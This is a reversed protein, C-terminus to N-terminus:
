TMVAIYSGTVVDIILLVLSRPQVVYILRILLWNTYFLQSKALNASNGALMPSYDSILVASFFEFFKCFWHRFLIIPGFACEEDYLSSGLDDSNSVNVVAMQWSMAPEMLHYLIMLGVNYTCTGQWCSACHHCLLSVSPWCHSQCHGM